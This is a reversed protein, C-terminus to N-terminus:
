LSTSMTLSILKGSNTETMSKMSLHITKRYLAAVLVKRLRIALVVGMDYVYSRLILAVLQASCFIVGFIIGYKPDAEPDEIYEIMKGVFDAYFVAISEALVAFFMHRFFNPALLWIIAWKLVSYWDIDEEAVGNKKQIAVQTSM